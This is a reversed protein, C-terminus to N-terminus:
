IKRTKFKAIKGLARFERFKMSVFNLLFLTLLLLFAIQTDLNNSNKINIVTSNQFSTLSSNNTM